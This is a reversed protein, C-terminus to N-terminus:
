LNFHFRKTIESSRMIDPTRSKLHQSSLLSQIKTPPPNPAFSRGDGTATSRHLIMANNNNNTNEHTFEPDQSIFHSSSSTQINNSSNNSLKYIPLPQLVKDSPYDMAKRQPIPTRSYMRSHKGDLLDDVEQSFSPPILGPTRNFERGDSSYEKLMDTVRMSSLILPADVESNLGHNTKTKRKHQASSITQTGDSENNTLRFSRSGHNSIRSECDYQLRDALSSIQQRSNMERGIRSAQGLRSPPWPYDVAEEISQQSRTQKVISRDLLSRNNVVTGKNDFSGTQKVARSHGNDEDTSIQKQSPPFAVSESRPYNKQTLRIFSNENQLQERELQSYKNGHQREKPIGNKNNNFGNRPDRERKAVQDTKNRSGKDNYTVSVTHTSDKYKIQSNNDNIRSELKHNEAPIRQHQKSTTTSSHNKKWISSRIRQIEEQLMQANKLKNRKKENSASSSEINMQNTKQHLATVVQSKRGEKEKESAEEIENQINETSSDHAFNAKRDQGLSPQKLTNAKKLYKNPVVKVEIEDLDSASPAVVKGSNIDSDFLSMTKSSSDSESSMSDMNLSNVNEIVTNLFKSCSNSSHEDRSHSTVVDDSKIDNKHADNTGVYKKDNYQTDLDHEFTQANSVTSVRRESRSSSSTPQRKRNPRVPIRNQNRLRDTEFVAHELCNDITYREHPDLRLTNKMFDILKSSLIAHYRRALTQPEGVEPFKLGSFRRNLYFLKLYESPLPGLVKQIIYLQDIESEGPFLAQGDSLEGLICGVSWVDVPKGYSASLLLEPARYWRTAVYDTYQGSGSPSLNRAFGFDCLKLVDDQRILLNEPKVDRHIVDNSHCWQLAQCLQFIYWRAKELPVGNPMEELLELMNRDVYEFVIYLKGKRRFAERVDVINDQKLSRLLRLERLNIRKVDENSESDKFKKIALIEGSDKHKCKLVIGYAGEGVVGLVEYKNM